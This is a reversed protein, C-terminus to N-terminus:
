RASSDAASEQDRTLLHRLVAAHAATVAHRSEPTPEGVDFAHGGTPHDILDLPTGAAHAAALFTDVTAAVPPQERGARTLVLPLAPHPSPRFRPPVASWGPLPSLVPYSFAACRLWPPPAALHDASLLAGGSFFWLAIRDADVRPDARLADLAAALDAAARPFDGLAHLRHDLTAGVLGLGAAHAAHGTYLPWDRPTPRIDAGLPGGHVFLVAPRPGDADPLHLDLALDPAGTRVRPRAPVDLVFPRLHPPDAAPAATIRHGEDAAARLLADALADPASLMPWHGTPLELFGVRPDALARLHPPGFRVATEVTALDTGGDATCLIGTTPWPAPGGGSLRLPQLLTAAPQPAAYRDLRDLAEASLGATSGWRHWQDPEPVPVPADAGGPATLLERTLHDPTLALATDGDQPLGADLHVIRGIRERRRDAAGLVPHIAYGHGVLVLPEAGDLHDIQQAVDEVHTELDTGPGALHRREGLGTLTLPHAQAGARRLLEATERWIWGGTFPGSVLVFVTM